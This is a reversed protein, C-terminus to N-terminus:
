LKGGRYTFAFLGILSLGALLMASPEPVANPNGDFRLYDIQLFGTEFPNLSGVGITGAPFRSPEALLSVGPVEVGDLYFRPADPGLGDPDVIAYDHYIEFPKNALAGLPENPDVPEAWIKTATNAGPNGNPDGGNYIGDTSDVGANRFSLHWLNTGDDVFMMRGFEEQSNGAFKYNGTFSWPDFFVNTPVTHTFLIPPDDAGTILLTAQGTIVTDGGNWTWGQTDPNAAAGM